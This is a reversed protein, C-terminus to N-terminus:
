KKGKGLAEDVAELLETLSFPKSIVKHILADLNHARQREAAYGTMMLIPMDPRDKSVKLALTIGDMEPMVIDTVLLDFRATILTEVARQGDGVSIVEHGAHELARVVFERVPAEDEAVLIRAMM